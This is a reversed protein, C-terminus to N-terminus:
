IRNKILVATDLARYDILEKSTLRAYIGCVQSEIVYVGICIHAPGVPTALYIPEFQEQALWSCPHIVAKALATAYASGKWSRAFVADGTNSYAGKIVWAKAPQTIAVMATKTVPLIERWTSCSVGLRDWLLPLRKSESLIAAAPNCVPTLGGRFFSAWGRGCLRTMWEGQYFRYVLDVPRM